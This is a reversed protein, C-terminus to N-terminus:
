SDDSLLIGLTPKHKEPAKKKHPVVQETKPAGIRDRAMEKVAKVARFVKVKKKRPMRECDIAHEGAGKGPM